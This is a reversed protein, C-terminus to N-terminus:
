SNKDMFDDTEKLVAKSMKLLASKFSEIIKEDINDEIEKSFPHLYFANFTNIPEQLAGGDLLMVVDKTHLAFRSEILSGIVDDNTEDLQIKLEGILLAYLDNNIAEIFAAPYKSQASFNCILANYILCEIKGLAGLHQFDNEFYTCNRKAIEIIQQAQIVKV